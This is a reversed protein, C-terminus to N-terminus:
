PFTWLYCSTTGALVEPVQQGHGCSDGGLGAGLSWLLEAGCSGLVVFGYGLKKVYSPSTGKTQACFVEVLLTPLNGYHWAVLFNGLTQSSSDGGGPLDYLFYLNGWLDGLLQGVAQCPPVLQIGGM